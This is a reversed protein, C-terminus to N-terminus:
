VTRNVTEKLRFSTFGEGLYKGPTITRQSKAILDAKGKIWIEDIMFEWKSRKKPGDDLFIRGGTFLLRDEFRDEYKDFLDELFIVFSSGSLSAFELLITLFDDKYKEDLFHFWKRSYRIALHPNPDNIAYEIAMINNTIKIDKGEKILTRFGELIPFDKVVLSKGTDDALHGNADESPELLSYSPEFTLETHRLVDFTRDASLTEGIKPFFYVVTNVM